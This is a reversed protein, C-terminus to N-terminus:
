FPNRWQKKRVIRELIKKLEMNSVEVQGSTQPHFPTAVKHRASYRALLMEINKYYLYTGEDSIISRPM